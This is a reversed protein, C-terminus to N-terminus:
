SVDRIKGQCVPGRGCIPADVVYANEPVKNRIGHVIDPTTTSGIVLVAGCKLGALIGNEGLHASEIDGSM